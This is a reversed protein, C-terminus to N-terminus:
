PQVYRPKGQEDTIWKGSEASPAQGCVQGFIKWEYENSSAAGTRSMNLQCEQGLMRVTVLAHNGDVKAPGVLIFQTAMYEKALAEVAESTGSEGSQASASVSALLLTVYLALKM